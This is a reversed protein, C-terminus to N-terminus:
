QDAEADFGLHKLMAVKPLTLRWQSNIMYRTRYLLQPPAHEAAIEIEFDFTANARKIIQKRVEHDVFDVSREPGWETLMEKLAVSQHSDTRTDFEFHYDSKRRLTKGCERMLAFYRRDHKDGLEHLLTKRASELAEDVLESLFRTVLGIHFKKVVIRWHNAQGPLCAFGASLENLFRVREDDDDLTEAAIRLADAVIPHLPKPDKPTKAM